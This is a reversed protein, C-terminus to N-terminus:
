GARYKQFKMIKGIVVMWIAAILYGGVVDSVYHVGLFVRSAGILAVVSIAFVWLIKSWSPPLKRTIITALTFYFLFNYLAHGSPFSYSTPMTNPYIEEPRPRGVLWKSSTDIVVSGIMSSAMFRFAIWDQLLILYGISAMTFATLVAVSGLISLGKWFVVLSPTNLSLAFNRLSLDLSTTIGTIVLIVLVSTALILALIAANFKSQMLM